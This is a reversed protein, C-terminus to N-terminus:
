EDKTSGVTSQTGENRSSAWRLEQHTDKLYNVIESIDVNVPCYRICRGCGCCAIVGEYKEPYYIFKHGVRNKFRQFKTPRPNHGSAELTFHFFMCADWSRVREGSGIGQEDTINFCYCTPCLYTCAGCSVCKGVVQEWFGDFNFLSQSIKPLEDPTFPNRVEDHAKTQVHQADKLYPKGDEIVHKGLIARGKETVPEIVYGGELETMMVDSGEKQAPGGGVAVCFCGPSPAACSLTVILTNERRKRYYPDPTNTEIFVRDYIRFGKADCPRAGFIVMNPVDIDAKLEVSMKQHDEPNKKYQFAFLTESQPYIVSKPPTNAPRDLCLTREESFPRFLVIDGELCPAYVVADKALEKLFDKIKEKPLYGTDSM